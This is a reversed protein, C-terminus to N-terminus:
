TSAQVPFRLAVLNRGSCDDARHGVCKLGILCESGASSPLGRSSWCLHQKDNHLEAIAPGTFPGDCQGLSISNRARRRDRRDRSQRQRTTALIKSQAVLSMAIGSFGSGTVCQPRARKWPKTWDCTCRDRLVLGIVLFHGALRQRSTENCRVPAAWRAQIPGVCTRTQVGSCGPHRICQNLRNPNAHSIRGFDRRAGIRTM